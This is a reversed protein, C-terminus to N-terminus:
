EYRLSDVPNATAAKISQRSVTLVAILLAIIASAVFVGIGLNVRYVFNELWKYMFYYAIPWAIVNALFVWKLFSKSLLFYISIIPAGLTKRIGIERTKQEATFVALGFLGMCAVVVATASFYRFIDSMRRDARHLAEFSEDLFFYDLPYDPILRKWVSRIATLAEGYRNADLRVSLYNHRRISTVQLIIPYAARHFSYLNM